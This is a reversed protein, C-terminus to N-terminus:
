GRSFTWRTAARARPPPSAAANIVVDHDICIKPNNHVYISRENKREKKTPAAAHRSDQIRTAPRRAVRVDLSDANGSM